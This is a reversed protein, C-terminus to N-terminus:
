RVQINSHDPCWNEVTKVKDHSSMGKGHYACSNIGKERLAIALPAVDKVFDTYVIVRQHQILDFLYDTLVSYYSTTGPPPPPPPPIFYHMAHNILLQLGNKPLKTLEMAHFTVNPKNISSVELVPDQLMDQLQEKIFPTATATLAMIPVAPFHDKVNM